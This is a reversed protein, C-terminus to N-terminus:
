TGRFEPRRKEIFAAVGEQHDDSAILQEQLAAEDELQQDLGGYYCANVLRKTAAFALPPGAALQSALGRAASALEADPVVQNVLGWELARAAALRQGLYALEFTRAHGLRASLLASAGGDLTLGVNVFALLFYASEAAVILDCALALSCGIGVAPGNVAAIVPKPVRRVRAIPPNYLERMLELFMPPGNPGPEPQAKLDAGASFARGAGTIVIARVGPDDAARDLAAILEHAFEPIWANLSDPRSLTITAVADAVDYDVTTITDPETTM